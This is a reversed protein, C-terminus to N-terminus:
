FNWDFNYFIKIQYLSTKPKYIYWDKFKRKYVVPHEEFLVFQDFQFQFEYCFISVSLLNKYRKDLEKWSTDKFTYIRYVESVSEASVRQNDVQPLILCVNCILHFVKSVHIFLICATLIQIHINIRHYLFVINYQPKASYKLHYWLLCRLMDQYCCTLTVLTKRERKIGHQKILELM